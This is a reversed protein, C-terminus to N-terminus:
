KGGKVDILINGCGDVRGVNGPLLLTTSDKQEIIAPGEMVAGPKLLDRNYITTRRFRGNLFM